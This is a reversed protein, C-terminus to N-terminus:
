AGYLRECLGGLELMDLTVGCGGIDAGSFGGHCDSGGTVLLGRRRCFDLLAQTLEGDHLPYFCEIGDAGCSVAIDLERLFDDGRCAISAGPHALICVGGARHVQGCVEEMSFFGATDAGAGYAGYLEMGERLGATIGRDCFYHLAKWGGLRRDYEFAELEDASVPFGDARMAEVLRVSQGDLLARTRGVFESFGADGPDFGYGLIHRHRGDGFCDLEVAALCRVSGGGSLRLAQRCGELVEHDAVAILGVGNEEARALIEAPTMTGDSFLSHIHLDVRTKGCLKKGM